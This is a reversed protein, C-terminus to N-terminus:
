NYRLAAAHEAHQQAAASRTQQQQQRSCTHCPRPSNRHGCPNGQGSLTGQKQGGARDCCLLLFGEAVLCLSPVRMTWPGVRRTENSGTSAKCRFCAGCASDGISVANCSSAQVGASTCRGGGCASRCPGGACRSSGCTSQVGACKHVQWWWMSVQVARRRVQWRM